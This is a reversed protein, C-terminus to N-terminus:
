ATFELPRIGKAQEEVRKKVAACVGNGLHERMVGQLVTLAAPNKAVLDVNFTTRIVRLLEGACRAEGAEFEEIFLEAHGRLMRVVDDPPFSKGAKIASDRKGRHERAVAVATKILSENAGALLLQRSLDHLDIEALDVDGIIRRIEPSLPKGLAPVEPEPGPPPRLGSPRRGHEEFHKFADIARVCTRGRVEQSVLAPWKGGKIRLYITRPEVGILAAVENVSQWEQNM